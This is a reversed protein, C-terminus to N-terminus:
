CCCTASRDHPSSACWSTASSAPQGRGSADAPLHPGRRRDGARPLRAPLRRAAPRSKIFDTSVIVHVPLVRLASEGVRCAASWRPPPAPACWWPTSTRVQSALERQWQEGLHPPCLVALRRIEGRDLLERAILGAEITKGIGVDDAILLRVPDLRLAMLLPVLQYPRPRVGLRGLSRFPGAGSRLTLRAADRLLRGAVFDGAHAPDPPAFTAPQVANGELPLYIGCVEAEIGGLPRLLLVEDEDSPLM